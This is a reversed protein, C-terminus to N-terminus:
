RYPDFDMKEVKLANFTFVIGAAACFQFYISSLVPDFVELAYMDVMQSLTLFVSMGISAFVMTKSVAHIQRLQDEYAQYPNLKKGYLNRAIIFGFFVQAGVSTILTVVIEWTPQTAFDRTAIYFSIWGVFAIAALVVAVPSIFDFLRRPAMAASRKKDSYHQQLLKSYRFEKIEAYLIPAIQLFFYLMVLIEDGGMPSPRYGSTFMMQLIVIGALAIAYNVGRFYRLGRKAGEIDFNEQGMPYLKPYEAPPFQDFIYSVRKVLKGPIHVSLFLIQGLFVIYFIALVTTMSLSEPM